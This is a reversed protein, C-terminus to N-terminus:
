PMPERNEKIGDRIFHLLPNIGTMEVDPYVELYAASDFYPSPNRGEFGGFKLYHLAPNKGYDPDRAIDPYRELYWQADFWESVEIEAVAELRKRRLRRREKRKDREAGFPFHGIAWRSAASAARVGPQPSPKASAMAEPEPKVAVPKVASPIATDRPSVAPAAEAPRANQNAARTAEALAANLSAIESDRSELMRTLIALENFRTAINEDKQRLKAELASVRAAQDAAADNSSEAKARALATRLEQCEADRKEALATLAALEEFRKQLDHEKQALTRELSQRQGESSTLKQEVDYLDTQAQTLELQLVQLQGHADSVNEALHLKDAELEALAEERERLTQQLNSLNASQEERERAVHDLRSATERLRQAQTEALAQDVCGRGLRAFVERVTRAATPAAWRNLLTEVLEAPTEGVVLVGLGDGHHFTVSRYRNQLEAYYHHALCGSEHRNIGPILVVGQRSLRPIWRELLEDMDPDTPELDLALIDVSGAEIQKAARHLPMQLHRALGGYRRDAMAQLEEAQPGEAVLLSEASLGLRGLGQCFAGHLSGARAGLTVCRQPQSAELLWFIWPLHDLWASAEIQDPRWFMAGQALSQLPATAVARPKKETILM